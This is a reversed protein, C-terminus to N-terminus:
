KWRCLAPFQHCGLGYTKLVDETTQGAPPFAEIVRSTKGIDPWLDPIALAARNLLPCGITLNRAESNHLPEEPHDNALKQLEPYQTAWVGKDYPMAELRQQLTGGTMGEGRRVVFIASEVCRMFVNDNIKNDRGGHIFVPRSVKDFVNNEIIFGSEQDDLYIGSVLKRGLSLDADPADAMGIDHFWNDRIITGRETWDRGMYIAGADDAETVVNRIENGSILHNNGQVIIASHPSDQLLNNEITLGVGSIKVAPRYVRADLGFGSIQSDRLAHGAPTLTTRDGGRMEVATEAIDTINCHTIVVNRGGDVVIARGGMHRIDCGDITVNESNRIILATSLAKQLKLGSLKLDHAGNIELLTKETAIEFTDAGNFAAAYVKRSTEDFVYDGPRAIATLANFVFFPFIPRLELPQKLPEFTLKQQDPTAATVRSAEFAWDAGWYAGLWLDPEHAFREFVAQPLVVSNKDPGPSIDHSFGESPWRAPQFRTDGQFLEFTSGENEVYGGRRTIAFGRSGPVKALDLEFVQLDAPFEVGKASLVRVGKVSVAGNRHLCALNIPEGSFRCSLRPQSNPAPEMEGDAAPSPGASLCLALVMWAGAAKIRRRTKEQPRRDASAPPPSIFMM